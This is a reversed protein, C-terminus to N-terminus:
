TGGFPQFSSLRFSSSLIHSRNQMQRRRMENQEIGVACRSCVPHRPLEPFLYFTTSLPTNCQTCILCQPHWNQKMAKIVTDLIPQLCKACHPAIDRAYCGNCYAKGNEHRFNGDGYTVLVKGCRFCRLCEAHFSKGLATAYSSVIPQHCAACLQNSAQSVPLVAREGSPSDSQTFSDKNKHSSDPIVSSEGNEERKRNDSRLGQKKKTPQHSNLTDAPSAANPSTPVVTQNKQKIIRKKKKRRSKKSEQSTQGEQKWKTENESPKKKGNSVASSTDAGRLAKSYCFEENSEKGGGVEMSQLKKVVNPEDKSKWSSIMNNVDEENVFVQFLEWAKKKRHFEINQKKTVCLYLKEEILPIFIAMRNCSLDCELGFFCPEKSFCLSHNSSANMFYEGQFILVTTSLGVIHFETCPDQKNNTTGLIPPECSWDIKLWSNHHSQFRVRAGTSVISYFAGLKPSVFNGSLSDIIRDLRTRLEEKCHTQINTATALLSELKRLLSYEALELFLEEAQAVQESVFFYENKKCGIYISETSNTLFWSFKSTQILKLVFDGQEPKNRLLVNPPEAQNFVLLKSPGMEKGEVQTRLSVHGKNDVWQFCLVAALKPDAFAVADQGRKEKCTSAGIVLYKGSRNRIRFPVQLHNILALLIKNTVQEFASFTAM